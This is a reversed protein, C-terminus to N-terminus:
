ELKFKMPLTMISDVPKGKGLAPNWNPMLKFVRLVEKDCGGGIGKLIKFDSLEGNKNVKFETLITGQIGAQKAMPPYKINKGLFRYFASMGGPYSASITDVLYFISDKPISTICHKTREFIESQQIKPSNTFFDQAIQKKRTCKATVEKKSLCECLDEWKPLNSKIIGLFYFEKKFLSLDITLIAERGNDNITLYEKFSGENNEFQNDIINLSNLKFHNQKLEKSITQINTKTNEILKNYLQDLNKKVEKRVKGEELLIKFYEKKTPLIKLVLDSNNKKISNIIVTNIENKQGISINSLILFLQVLILKKLPISIKKLIM